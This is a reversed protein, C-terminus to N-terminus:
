NTGDEQGSGLFSVVVEMCAEVDKYAMKRVLVTTEGTMQSIIPYFHKMKYFEKGGTPLEEVMAGTMENRFTVKRVIHEDKSGMQVPKILEIEHPLTFVVEGDKDIEKAM